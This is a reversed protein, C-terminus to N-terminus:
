RAQRVFNFPVSLISGSGGPGVFRARRAVQVICDVVGASLGGHSTAAAFDVEGNPAVKIQLVLRGSQSPDSDLGKQYCRRAGPHIQSRITAEANAVPVSITPASYQVDFQPAIARVPGATSPVAPTITPRLDRLSKGLEIPGSGSPLQLGGVHTNDIGESREALERLDVPAGESGPSTAVVVARGPDIATLIAIRVRQVSSLMDEIAKPDPTSPHSPAEPV